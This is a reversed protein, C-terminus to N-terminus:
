SVSCRVGAPQRTVSAEQVSLPPQHSGDQTQPSGADPTIPPVHLCNRHDFALRSPHQQEIVLLSQKEEEIWVWDVTGIPIRGTPADLGSLRRFLRCATFQDLLDAGVRDVEARDYKSPMSAERVVTLAKVLVLPVQQAMKAAWGVQLTTRAVVLGRGHRRMSPPAEGFEASGALAEKRLAQGIEYLAQELGGFGPSLTQVFTGTPSM